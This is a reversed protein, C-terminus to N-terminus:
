IFLSQAFFQQWGMDLVAETTCDGLQPVFRGGGMGMKKQKYHTKM